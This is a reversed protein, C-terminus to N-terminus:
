EFTPNKRRKKVKRKRSPPNPPTKAEPAKVVPPTADSFNVRMWGTQGDRILRISFGPETKVNALAKGAQDATVVNNRNVRTIVDGDRFGIKQAKPGPARVVVTDGTAAKEMKISSTVEPLATAFEARTLGTPRLV